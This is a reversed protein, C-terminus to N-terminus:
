NSYLLKMCLKTVSISVMFIPTSSQQLVSTFTSALAKEIIAQEPNLRDQSGHIHEQASNEVLAFVRFYVYYM